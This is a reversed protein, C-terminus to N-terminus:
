CWHVSVTFTSPHYDPGIYFALGWGINFEKIDNEPWQTMLQLWGIIGWHIWTSPPPPPCTSGLYLRHGGKPFLIFPGSMPRVGCSWLTVVFFTYSRCLVPRYILVFQFRDRMPFRDNPYKKLVIGVYDHSVRCVVEITIYLPIIHWFWELLMRVKNIIMRGEKRPVPVSPRPYYVSLALTGFENQCWESMTTNDNLCMMWHAVHATM